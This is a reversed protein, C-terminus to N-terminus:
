MGQAGSILMDGRIVVDSIGSKLNGLHHGIGNMRRYLGAMIAKISVYDRAQAVGEAFPDKVQQGPIILVRLIVIKGGQGHLDIVRGVADAAQMAVDGSFLEGLIRVLNGGNGVSDM